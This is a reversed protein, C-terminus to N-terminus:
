SKWACLIEILTLNSATLIMSTYLKNKQKKEREPSSAEGPSGVEFYVM